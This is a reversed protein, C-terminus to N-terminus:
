KNVVFKQMPVFVREFLQSKEGSFFSKPNISSSILYKNITDAPIAKLEIASFNNGEIQLSHSAINIQSAGEEVFDYASLNSIMNLYNDIETSDVSNNNVLWNENEKTLVFASDAPYNFTIKTIDTKNVKVLKKDRFADLGNSFFFAVGGKVSYVEKEDALRLYSSFEMSRQYPNNSQQVSYKGVVINLPEQNPYSIKVNVGLSDGVQFESWKSDDRSAIREIKIKSLENILNVIYEEDAPYNQGDCQLDWMKSNKIIKIEKNDKKSIFSVESISATDIAFLERNFTRDLKKNDSVKTIVAIIILIVLLVILIIFNKKKFM